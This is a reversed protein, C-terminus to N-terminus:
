IFLECSFISIPSSSYLFEVSLIPGPNFIFLTNYYQTGHRREVDMLSTLATGGVTWDEVPAALNGM